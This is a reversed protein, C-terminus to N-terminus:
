PSKVLGKGVAVAVREAGARAGMLNLAGPGLQLAAAGGMIHVPVDDRWQLTDDLPPLNDVLAVPAQQQLQSLLASGAVSAEFGTALFVMHAFHDQTYTTGSLSLLLHKSGNSDASHEV